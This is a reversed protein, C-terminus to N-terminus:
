EGTKALAYGLSFMVYSLNLVERYMAEVQEPTVPQGDARAAAVIAPLHDKALIEIGDRSQARNEKLFKMAQDRHSRLVQEM